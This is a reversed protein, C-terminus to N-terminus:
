AVEGGLRLTGGLQQRHQRACLKRASKCGFVSLHTMKAHYLSAAEMEALHVVPFVCSDTGTSAERLGCRPVCVVPGDPGPLQTPLILSIKGMLPGHWPM